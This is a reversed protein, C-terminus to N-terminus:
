FDHLGKPFLPGDKNFNKGNTVVALTHGDDRLKTLYEESGTILDKSYSREIKRFLEYDDNTPNISNMALLMGVLDRTRTRDIKLNEIFHDLEQDTVSLRREAIFDYSAAKKSTVSDVLTGGIDFLSYSM